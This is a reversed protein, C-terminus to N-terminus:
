LIVESNARLTGLMANMRGLAIIKQKLRKRKEYKELEAETMKSLQEKLDKEM